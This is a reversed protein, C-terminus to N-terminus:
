FFFGEMVFTIPFISNHSFCLITPPFYFQSLPYNLFSCLVTSLMPFEPFSCLPPLCLSKHSLCFQPPLSLPYPSITFSILINHSFLITLSFSYNHFLHPIIPSISTHSLFFFQALSSSSHSSQSCLLVKYVSTIAPRSLLSMKGPGTM